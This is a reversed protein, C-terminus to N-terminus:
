SIGPMKSVPFEDGRECIGALLEKGTGSGDVGYKRGV